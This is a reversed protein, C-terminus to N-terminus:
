RRVPMMTELAPYNATAIEYYDQTYIRAGFGEKWDLLSHNLGRGETQNSTGFDFFRKDKYREILWDFLFAQAGSHRGTETVAAYQARAVAPSEYITVGAVIEDGLYASFQRINEPFRSALLTIEELTHVPKAGYRSELQPVLVREWFPQLTTEQVVRAGLDAAKRIMSKRGKLAPLRDTFSIAAPCDRRYLRADLIYLAYELDDEPLTHYCAPMRKYRLQSIGRGSLHRLVAHFCSLADGLRAARTLVLGGYTLGEHNVVAGDSGLNAPLIAALSQGNLVMLSHDTFRDRHYDMYDRHFLFTANRGSDVFQDWHTKYNPLYREVTLTGAAASKTAVEPLPHDMPWVAPPHGAATGPMQGAMTSDKEVLSMRGWLLMELAPFRPLPASDRAFARHKIGCVNTKEPRPM